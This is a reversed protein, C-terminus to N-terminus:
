PAALAASQEDAVGNPAAVKEATSATLDRYLRAGAAMFFAITFYTVAVSVLDLAFITIWIFGTVVAVPGLFISAVFVAGYAWSSYGWWVALFVLIRTAVKLFRRRMLERSYLLAHWSHVDDFVLAYQAFYLLILVPLGPPLLPILIHVPRFDSYSFVLWIFILFPVAFMAAVVAFVVFQLLWIWLFPLVTRTARKYVEIAEGLATPARTGNQERAIECLVVLFVLLTILLSLVYLADTLWWPYVDRPASPNRGPAYPTQIRSVAADGPSYIVNHGGSQFTDALRHQLNLADPLLCLSATLILPALILALAAWNGSLDNVANALYIFSSRVRVQVITSTPMTAIDLCPM